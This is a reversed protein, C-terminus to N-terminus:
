PRKHYNPELEERYKESYIREQQLAKERAGNGQPVDNLIESDFVRKGNTEKNMKNVQRQARASKGSNKLKNGGSIGVKVTKNTQKDFIRYVPQARSSLKSNGHVTQVTKVAKNVNKIGDVTKDVTRVTKLTTGAGGPVGPLITAAIDLIAAGGDIVASSYNGEKINNYLSKADMVVNAIDWLTEIYKGDIDVRNVPNGGCYAYPSLHYYKECLPDMSTFQAIAPDYQRAGYDYENLGHMTDYEKGNYKFKQYEPNTSRGTLGGYPYYENSQLVNGTADTVMRNNGLHDKIYFRYNTSVFPSIVYGGEFNCRALSGNDYIYSGVYETSDVSQIESATLNHIEGIALMTSQPVATHHITKLRRGDASYVYETVSRDAFQIRTPNGLYDYNIKTIGKNSYYKRFRVGSQVAEM